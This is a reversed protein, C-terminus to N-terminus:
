DVPPRAQARPHASAFAAAARLVLAECFRDGVIQLGVPLGRSNFGCPISAAPASMWQIESM